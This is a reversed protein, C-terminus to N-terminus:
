WSLRKKRGDKASVGVIGDAPSKGREMDISIASKERRYVYNLLKM